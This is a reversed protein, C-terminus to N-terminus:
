IQNSSPDYGMAEKWWSLVGLEEMKAAFDKVSEVEDFAGHSVGALIRNLDTIPGPRSALHYDKYRLSQSTTLM